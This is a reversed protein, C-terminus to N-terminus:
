RNDENDIIRFAQIKPKPTTNLISSLNQFKLELYTQIVKFIESLHDFIHQKM